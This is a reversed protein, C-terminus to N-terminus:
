LRFVQLLSLLDTPPSPTKFHWKYQHYQWTHQASMITLHPVIAILNFTSQPFSTQNSAVQNQYLKAHLTKDSCCPKKSIQSQQQESSHICGQNAPEGKYCKEAHGFLSFSKLNDQCFHMEVSYDFSTFLVLVALGFSMMRYINSKM